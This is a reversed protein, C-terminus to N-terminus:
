KKSGTANKIMEEALDDWRQARDMDDKEILPWYDMYIGAGRIWDRITFCVSQQGCKFSTTSGHSDHPTTYLHFDRFIVSLVLRGEKLKLVDELATNFEKQRASNVTENIEQRKAEAPNLTVMLNPDPRM